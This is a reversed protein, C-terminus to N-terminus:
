ATVAEATEIPREDPVDFWYAGYRGYEDRLNLTELYQILLEFVTYVQGRALLEAFDNHWGGFCPQGDTVHPHDRGGRRTNLNTLRIACSELNINIRFAGLWRSEGTDERTIRIDDTTTIVLSNSVFDMEAVRPHNELAKWERLVQEAADNDRSALIADILEQRQRLERLTAALQAQYEAVQAQHEDIRQRHNLLQRDYISRVYREIAQQRLEARREAAGALFADDVCLRAAEIIAATVDDELETGWFRFYIYVTREQVEGILHEGLYIPNAPTEHPVYIRGAWDQYEYDCADLDPASEGVITIGRAVADEVSYPEPSFYQWDERYTDALVASLLRIPRDLEQELDRFPQEDALLYHTYM